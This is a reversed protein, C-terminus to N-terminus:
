FHDIKVNLFLIFLYIFLFSQNQKALYERLRLSKVLIQLLWALHRIMMLGGIGIPVLKVYQCSLLM